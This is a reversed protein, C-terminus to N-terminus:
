LINYYTGILFVNILKGIVYNVIPVCGGNHSKGLTYEVFANYFEVVNAISKTKKAVSQYIDPLEKVREALEKKMQNGTIGLKKCISNFESNALNESKKYDAEKKELDQFM